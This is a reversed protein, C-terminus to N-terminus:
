THSRWSTWPYGLLGVAKPVLSYGWHWPVLFWVPTGVNDRSHYTRWGLALIAADKFITILTYNTMLFLSWMITLAILLTSIIILIFINNGHLLLQWYLPPIISLLLVASQFCTCLGSTGNSIINSMKFKLFFNNNQGFLLAIIPGFM